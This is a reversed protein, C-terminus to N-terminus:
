NSECRSGELYQKAEHLAQAQEEPTLRQNLIVETGDESVMWTMAGPLDAKDVQPMSHATKPVSKM